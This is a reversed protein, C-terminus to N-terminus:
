GLQVYGLGVDVVTQLIDKIKPVNEFFELAQTHTMSLIDAINKGKYLVQKTEHNFRSGHCEECTIMVEPLFQMEIINFGKGECKECRGGKLNFSFRGKKYGREKADPTLAFLDRIHDLM